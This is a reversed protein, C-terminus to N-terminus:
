SLFEELLGLRQYNPNQFYIIPDDPPFATEMIGDLGFMVLWLQGQYPAVITPYLTQAYRFSYVVAEPHHLIGHILRQYDALTTAPPLHGLRIRKKLHPQAKGPKWRIQNRAQQIASGVQSHWPQFLPSDDFMIANYWGVWQFHLPCDASNTLKNRSWWSWVISRAPPM